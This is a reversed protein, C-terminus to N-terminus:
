LMFDETYITMQGPAFWYAKKNYKSLAGEFEARIKTPETPNLNVIIYVAKGEKNVFRTVAVPSPNIIYTIKKLEETGAFAPTGGYTTLYHEVKDFTYDKLCDAFYEAFM